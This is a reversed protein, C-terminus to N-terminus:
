VEGRLCGEEGWFHCVTAYLKKNNTKLMDLFNKNFFKNGKDTQLFRTPKLLRGDASDLIDKTAKTVYKADEKKIPRVWAYKSFVNVV